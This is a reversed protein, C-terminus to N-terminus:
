FGLGLWCSAANSRISSSVRREIANDLIL